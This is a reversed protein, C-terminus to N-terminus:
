EFAELGLGLGGLGGAGPRPLRRDSRFGIRGSAISVPREDVRQASPLRGGSLTEYGDVAVARVAQGDPDGSVRLVGLFHDLVREPAHDPFDIAEPASGGEARPEI